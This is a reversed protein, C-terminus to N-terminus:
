SAHSLSNRISPPLDELNNSFTLHLPVQRQRAFSVIEGKTWSLFPADIRIRGDTYLGYVAQMAKVFEPSCDTYPTGAHIGIGVIGSEKEFAMLAVSLLAANRSPVYGKEFGGGSISRQLLAIQYHAAIASSATREENNYSQGYDIFIGRVLFGMSKYYEVCAASDIGGSLLVIADKNDTPAM